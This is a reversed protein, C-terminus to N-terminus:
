LAALGSEAATTVGKILFGGGSAMAIMKEPKDALFERCAKTAGPCTSFGFDDCVIIGGPNMREYFFAISDRTPEYLDVDIHVVAFRRDRAADFGDPIWGKHISVAPFESLNRRVTNESVSLAGPVWYKGDNEMPASLGAFSDFVFHTREGGLTRNMACMLYSGAGEFSGCEATDGPVAQVLRMLQGLMWRRETNMGELEGFRALYANFPASRIWDMQPWKFRYRPYLPRM